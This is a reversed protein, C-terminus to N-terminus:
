KSLRNAIAERKKHEAIDKQSLFKRKPKAEQEILHKMQTKRRWRKYFSIEYVYYEGEYGDRKVKAYPVAVWWDQMEAPFSYTKFEYRDQVVETVIGREWVRYPIWLKSKNPELADFKACEELWSEIKYNTGDVGITPLAAKLKDLTIGTGGFYKELNKM